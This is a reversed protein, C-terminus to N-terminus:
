IKLPVLYVQSLNRNTNEPTAAFGGTCVLPVGHSSNLKLLTDWFPEDKETTLLQTAEPM